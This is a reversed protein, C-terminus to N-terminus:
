AGLQDFVVLREEYREWGLERLLRRAHGWTRDAYRAYGPNGGATVQYGFTGLAKLSRQLATLAFAQRNGATLGRPSEPVRLSTDVTHAVGSSSQVTALSSSMVAASVDVYNDLLLSAADYYLPGEMVDQFDVVFLRDRHVMLNRSHFDRHCLARPLKDLRASLEDYFARRQEAGGEVGLWARVAHREMFDLEFTFREGDLAWGPNPSGTRAGHAQMKTVFSMAQRYLRSVDRSPAGDLMQDGGDEMALVRAGRGWLKPVRVGAARFWQQTREFRDLGETADSEPYVVLVASGGAKTGVRFFRRTSAHGQLRRATTIVPLRLGALAGSAELERYEALDITM